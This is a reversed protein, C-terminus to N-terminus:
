CPIGPGHSELAEEAQGGQGARGPLLRPCGVGGADLYNASMDRWCSPLLATCQSASLLASFRRSRGRLVKWSPLHGAGCTDM